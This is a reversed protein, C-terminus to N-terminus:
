DLRVSVVGFRLGAVSGSTPLSPMTGTFTGAGGGGDTVTVPVPIQNGDEDTILLPSTPVAAFTSYSGSITAGPQLQTQDLTVTPGPPATIRLASIYGRPGTINQLKISFQNNVNKVVDTFTGTDSNNARANVSDYTLITVATGDNVTLSSDPHSASAGYSGVVDLTIQEPGQLILEAYPWASFSNYFVSYRLVDAEDVWAAEGVGVGNYGVGGIDGVTFGPNWHLSWGTSAGTDDLLLVPSTDTPLILNWKSTVVGYNNIDDFTVFVPM